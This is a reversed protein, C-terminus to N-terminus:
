AASGLRRVRLAAEMRAVADRLEEAAAPSLDGRLAANAAEGVPGRGAELGGRRDDRIEGGMEALLSELAVRAQLAAQRERGADLDARARLVLDECALVTERAGLLAAFREEPAEMSRKARERSRPLELADAYQGEALAEGSGYGVRSVLAADPPLDWAYPDAHAARHAHLARSLVMLADSVRVRMREPEDRSAELWSEAAGADPFPEPDILTVRSTPVPEADSEALRRARRRNLLRRQPAGLTRLM